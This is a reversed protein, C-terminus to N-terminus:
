PSLTLMLVMTLALMLVVIVVLTIASIMARYNTMTPRITISAHNSRQTGGM